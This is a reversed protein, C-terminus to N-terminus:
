AWFHLTKIYPQVSRSRHFDMNCAIDFNFRSSYRIMSDNYVRLSAPKTYYTPTRVAKAKFPYSMDILDIDQKRDEFLSCRILSSTLCGYSTLRGPTNSNLHHTRSCKTLPAVESGVQPKPHPLTWSHGPQGCAGNIAQYSPGLLSIFIIIPSNSTTNYFM